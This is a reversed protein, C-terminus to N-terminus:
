FPGKDKIALVGGLESWMDRVSAFRESPNIALARACWADIGAPLSPRLEVLSPRPGSTVKRCLEVLDKAAFPPRGALARFVIVGLGYVDARADLKHSNGKWTEPAIYSPTGAIIGADTLSKLDLMKALGFDLLRVGGGRDRDVVFINSPKIDRHVIRNKHAAELTTAVPSLLQMLKQAKLRGGLKESDRLYREFNKGHLMEMVLYLIGRESKGLAHVYVANTGRLRAMALAEREVRERQVPDYSKEDGLLKIAVETGTELDRSRYVVGNGGSGLHNLIRYRDNIVQGSEYSM